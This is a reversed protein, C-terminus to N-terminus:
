GRRRRCREAQGSDSGSHLHGERGKKVLRGMKKWAQFGAV